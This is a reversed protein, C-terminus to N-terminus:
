LVGHHMEKVSLPNAGRRLERCGRTGLSNLRHLPGTDIQAHADAHDDVECKEKKM